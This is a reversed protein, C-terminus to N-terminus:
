EGTEIWIYYPYMVLETMHRITLYTGYVWQSLGGLKCPKSAFCHNSVRYYESNVGSLNMETKSMMAEDPVEKSALLVSAKIREKSKYYQDKGVYELM